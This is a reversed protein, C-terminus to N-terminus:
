APITMARAPVLRAVFRALPEDDLRLGADLAARAQEAGLRPSVERLFKQELVAPMTPAALSGTQLEVQETVAAGDAYRLHIRNPFYIPMYDGQPVAPAPQRIRDLATRVWGLVDRPALL